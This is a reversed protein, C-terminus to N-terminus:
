RQQQVVLQTSELIFHQAGEQLRQAASSCHWQGVQADKHSKRALSAKLLAQLQHEPQQVPLHVNVGQTPMTLSAECPYLLLRVDALLVFSSIDTHVRLRPEQVQPPDTM